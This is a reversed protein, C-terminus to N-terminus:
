LATVLSETILTNKSIETEDKWVLVGNVGPALIHDTDAHTIWIFFFLNIRPTFVNQDSIIPDALGRTFTTQSM